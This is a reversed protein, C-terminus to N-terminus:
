AGGGLDVALLESRNMHRPKVSLQWLTRCAGRCSEPTLASMGVHGREGVEADAAAMTVIMRDIPQASIAAIFIANAEV